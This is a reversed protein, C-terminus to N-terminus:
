FIEFKRQQVSENCIQSNELKLCTKKSNVSRYNTIKSKNNNQICNVSSKM